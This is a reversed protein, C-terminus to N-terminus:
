GREDRLRVVGAAATDGEVRLDFRLRGEADPGELTGAIHDGPRVRRRLRLSKVEAITRPGGALRSAADALLALHTIGPLLPDGEFHGRFCACDPSVEWLLRAGGTGGAPTIELLRIGDPLFTM